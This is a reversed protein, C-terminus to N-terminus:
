KKSKEQNNQIKEILELIDQKLENKINKGTQSITEITNPTINKAVVMAIITNKNPFFMGSLGFVIMSVLSVRLAFKGTKWEDDNDDYESRIYFWCGIAILFGFTAIGFFVLLTTSITDAIGLLYILFPSVIPENM